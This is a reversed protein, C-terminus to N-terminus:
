HHGRAHCRELPEEPAVGEGEGVGGALENAVEVVDAEPVHQGGRRDAAM